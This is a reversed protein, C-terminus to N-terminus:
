TAVQPKEKYRFYKSRSIGIDSESLGLNILYKISEAEDAVTMDKHYYYALRDKHFEHLNIEVVLEKYETTTPYDLKGVFVTASKGGPNHKQMVINITKVIEEIKYPSVFSSKQLNIFIADKVRILHMIEEIGLLDNTLNDIVQKDLTEDLNLIYPHYNFDVKVTVPESYHITVYKEIPFNDKMKQIEARVKRLEAFKDKFTLIRKGDQELDTEPHFEKIAEIFKNLQPLINM